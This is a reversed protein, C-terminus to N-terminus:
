LFLRAWPQLRNWAMVPTEVWIGLSSHLHDRNKALKNEMTLFTDCGFCLADRILARDGSGLYGIKSGDLISLAHLNPSPPGYEALCTKWHHLVEHAWSLYASSGAQRVESFSNGSLAFEFPARSGVQMMLQLAQLKAWGEADRFIRDDSKLAGGDYLYEGYTLMTQLTSSDLFIRRPFAPLESLM